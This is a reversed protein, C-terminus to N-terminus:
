EVARSFVSCCIKDSSFVQCCVKNGYLLAAWFFQSDHPDVYLLIFSVQNPVESATTHHMGPCCDGYMLVLTGEKMSAPIEVTAATTAPAAVTPQVAATILSPPRANTFSSTTATTDDACRASMASVRDTVHLLRRGMGGMHGTFESAQTQGGHSDGGHPTVPAQGMQPYEGAEATSRPTVSAGDSVVVIDVANSL